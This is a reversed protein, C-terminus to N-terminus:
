KKLSNFCTLLELIEKWHKPKPKDLFLRNLDHEFDGHKAEVFAQCVALEAKSLKSYSRGLWAHEKLVEFKMNDVIACQALLKCYAMM